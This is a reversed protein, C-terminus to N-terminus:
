EAGHLTVILFTGAIGILMGHSHGRKVAGARPAGGVPDGQQRRRKERGGASQKEIALQNKRFM